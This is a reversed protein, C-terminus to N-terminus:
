RLVRPDHTERRRQRMATAAHEATAEPPEPQCSSDAFECAFIASPATCRTSSGACVDLLDHRATLRPLRERLPQTTYTAAACTYAAVYATAM